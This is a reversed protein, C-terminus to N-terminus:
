RKAKPVGSSIIFVRGSHFGSVASWGSTILFDDQGDGNIDGMTVADFRNGFSYALFLLRGTSLAEADPSIGAFDRVREPNVRVVCLGELSLAAVAAM